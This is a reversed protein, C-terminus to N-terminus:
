SSESRRFGHVTWRIELWPEPADAVDPQWDRPGAITVDDLFLFPAHSELVYVLERLRIMPLSLTYQVAIREYGNEVEPPLVQASGIRGEMKEVIARVDRQLQAGALAASEGTLLGPMAAAADETAKLLAAVAPETEARAKHLAVQRMTAEIRNQQGEFVAVIPALVLFAIGAFGLAAAFLAGTRGKIRAVAIM